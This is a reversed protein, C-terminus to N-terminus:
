IYESMTVSATARYLEGGPLMTEWTESVSEIKWKNDGIAKGGIVLTEADGNEASRAIADLTSRPKVGLLADLIMTFQVTQLKPRLFESRDKAGVRTHTAWDAGVTRSFSQLVLAQQDSVKFTITSGWSGVVAM